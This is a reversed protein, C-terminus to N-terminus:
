YYFDLNILHELELKLSFNGFVLFMLLNLEELRHILQLHHHQTRDRHLVQLLTEESKRIVLLVAHNGQLLQIELESFYYILRLVFIHLNNKM